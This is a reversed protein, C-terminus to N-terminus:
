SFPANDAISKVGWASISMGMKPLRANCYFHAILNQLLTISINDLDIIEHRLKSIIKENCDVKENKVNENCEPKKVSVNEKKIVQLRQWWTWLLWFNFGYTLVKIKELGLSHYMNTLTEVEFYNIHGPPANNYFNHFLKRSLTNYNPVGSTIFLGGPKLTRVLQKAIHLPEYLHEFTAHSYVVDFHNSPFHYDHISSIVIDLDFANAAYRSYESFDIGQTILGKKRARRLFMGSGCGFELIKLNTKSLTKVLNNILIDYYAITYIPETQYYNLIIRTEYQCAKEVKIEDVDAFVMRCRQCRLIRIKNVTTLYYGQHSFCLPCTRFQIQTLKKM